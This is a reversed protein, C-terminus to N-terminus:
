PLQPPELLKKAESFRKELTSKKLGRANPFHAELATIIKGESEYGSRTKGDSKKELMLHLLGGIIRLLGPNLENLEYVKTEGLSASSDNILASLSETRIVLSSIEPAPAPEFFEPRTSLKGGFGLNELHLVQKLLEQEPGILFFESIKEDGDRVMGMLPAYLNKGNMTRLLDYCGNQLRCVRKFECDPNWIGHITRLVPQLNFSKKFEIIQGTKPIYRDYENRKLFRVIAQQANEPLEGFIKDVEIWETGAICNAEDFLINRSEMEERCPAMVFPELSHRDIYEFFNRAAQVIFSEIQVCGNQIDNEDLKEYAQVYIDQDFYVSLGLQGEYALQIIEPATVTTGFNKGLIRCAEDISVWIKKRWFDM